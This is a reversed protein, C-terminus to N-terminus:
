PGVEMAAAPNVVWCCVLGLDAQDAQPTCTPHVDGDATVLLSCAWADPEDRLLHVVRALVSGTAGHASLLGLIRAIGVDQRSYRRATGSGAAPQYEPQLVDHRCWYDLQRFSVGALTAVQTTSYTDATTHM